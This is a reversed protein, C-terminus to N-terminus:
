SQASNTAHDHEFSDLASLSNEQESEAVCWELLSDELEM